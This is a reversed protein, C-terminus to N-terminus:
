CSDGSPMMKAAMSRATAHGQPVGDRLRIPQVIVANQSASWVCRMGELAGTEECHDVMVTGLSRGGNDTDLVVYCLKDRYAVGEATWTHGQDDEGHGIVRSDYQRFHLWGRHNRGGGPGYETFEVNWSTGHLRLASPLEGFRESRTHAGIRKGERYGLAIGILLVAISVATPLVWPLLQQEWPM